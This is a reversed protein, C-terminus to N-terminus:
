ALSDSRSATQTSNQCESCIGHIELSHSTMRFNHRECIVDQLREIEDSIFEIVKGCYVCKMHEHHKRGHTHEYRAEGQGFNYKRILGCKLLLDLTRYITARSVRNRSRMRFLIDEAEFHDHFSYIEDLVAFRERTQKLNHSQLFRSFIDRVEQRAPM